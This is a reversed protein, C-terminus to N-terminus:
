SLAKVLSGGSDQGTYSNDNNNVHNQIFSPTKGLVTLALLLNKMFKNWLGGCAPGPPPAPAEFHCEHMRVEVQKEMSNASVSSITIYIFRQNKKVSKMIM